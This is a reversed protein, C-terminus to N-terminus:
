EPDAQLRDIEAAVLAGAVAFREVMSKSWMKKEFNEWGDQKWKDQLTLAFIAANILAQDPHHQVDHETDYRYKEIQEKREQTILEIGTM